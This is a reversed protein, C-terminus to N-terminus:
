VELQPYVCTSLVPCSMIWASTRALSSSCCIDLATSCPEWPAQVFHSVLGKGCKRGRATPKHCGEMAMAGAYMPGSLPDAKCARHDSLCLPACVIQTCANVWPCHLHRWSLTRRDRVSVSSCSLRLFFGTQVVEFLVIEKILSPALGKEVLFAFDLRSCAALEQSMATLTPLLSCNGSTTCVVRRGSM